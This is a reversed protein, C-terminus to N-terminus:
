TCTFIKKYDCRVETIKEDGFHKTLEVVNFCICKKSCKGNIIPCFLDSDKARETIDMSGGKKKNNIM